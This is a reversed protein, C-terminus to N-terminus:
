CCGQGGEKPPADGRINTRKVQPEIDGLNEGALKEVVAKFVAPIGDGMRASTEFYRCGHKQAWDEGEQSEVKRQEHLDSKNGLLFLAAQDNSANRFSSLWDDLNEFSTRNTIDFVLLAAAASRFYVPSLSRYQEQGATDWIQVELDRGGVKDTFSEYLAGITNKEVPDFRDHIFKKVISTKGVSSDGITVVRFTLKDDEILMPVKQSSTVDIRLSISTGFTSTKRM